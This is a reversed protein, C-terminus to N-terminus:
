IFLNLLHFISAILGFIVSFVYLPNQKELEGFIYVAPILIIKVLWSFIILLLYIATPIFTTHMVWFYPGYQFTNGDPSKAILVNLTEIISLSKDSFILGFYLAFCAFIASFFIDIVIAMPIRYTSKKKVAWRLLFITTYITFFDFLFNSIIMRTTKPVWFDPMFSHGIMLSFLTLIVSLSFIFLTSVVFIKYKYPFMRIFPNNDSILIFLYFIIATLLFFSFYISLEFFTIIGFFLFVFFGSFYLCNSIRSILIKNNSNKLDKELIDLISACSIVIIFYIVFYTIPITIDTIVTFTINLSVSFDYTMLFTYTFLSSIVLLLIAYIIRKRNTYSISLYSFFLINKKYKKVFDFTIKIIEEPLQIWNSENIIRLIKRCFVKITKNIKKMFLELVAFVAAMFWFVGSAQKSIARILDLEM